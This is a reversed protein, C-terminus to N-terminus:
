FNQEGSDPSLKKFLHFKKTLIGRKLIVQSFNLRIYLQLSRDLEYASESLGTGLKM